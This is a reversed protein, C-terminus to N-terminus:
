FRTVGNELGKLGMFANRREVTIGESATDVVFASIGGRGGAHEPVRAMVVVLEAIVGNTTWLKVGDLEYAAGDETPTATTAMRAPDSGVDPETLLFASIAGKACRPLYAQKQADNGFLKVPQPVGISQHASVLAVLSPHVSGVLMLARNYALQSLGLGRYEEPIKMGFVGMDALARVYEDPVKADREIVTGDLEECLTRLKGLFAESRAEDAPSQTPHPHILELQFRGLFLEKAFSPARWETERAAEAVRRAEREDVKPGQTTTTMPARTRRSPSRHKRM